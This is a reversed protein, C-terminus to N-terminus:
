LNREDMYYSDNGQMSRGRFHKNLYSKAVVSAKISFEFLSKLEGNVDMKRILKSTKLHIEKFDKEMQKVKIRPKRNSIFLDYQDIIRSVILSNDNYIREAEQKRTSYNLSKSRKPPPHFTGLSLQNGSAM